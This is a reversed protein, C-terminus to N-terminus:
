QCRNQKCQKGQQYTGGGACINRCESARSVDQCAGECQCCGSSDCSRLGFILALVAVVLGAALMGLRKRNM